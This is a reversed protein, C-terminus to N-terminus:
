TKRPNKRELRRGHQEQASAVKKDKPFPLACFSLFIISVSVSFPFYFLPRVCAYVKRQSDKRRQGGLSLFCWLVCCGVRELLLLRAQLSRVLSVPYWCSSSSPVECLRLFLVLSLCILDHSFLVFLLLSSSSSSSFLSFFLFFLLLHLFCLVFLISLPFFAVSFPFAMALIFLFVSLSWFLFLVRCRFSFFRVLSLLCLCPLFLVVICGHCVPFLFFFLLNIKAVIRSRLKGSVMSIQRVM